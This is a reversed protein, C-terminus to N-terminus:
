ATIREMLASKAGEVQTGEFGAAENADSEEMEPLGALALIFNTLTLNPFLEAGSDALKGIVDVVEELTPVNPMAYIVEPYEELGAFAAANVDFLRPVLHTNIVGKISDMWGLVAKEFMHRKETALAFSGVKEHGIMVFDALVVGAIRADYRLIIENVNFQRRGGTTMLEFKYAEPNEPDHPLLVGEQEDRRVNRIIAELEAKLSAYKADKLVEFPVHMVPLGALDREIGIAEIEEICTKFHWPRYASRLISRGQPDGKSETTRFLLSKSIPMFRGTFDPAASQWMGRLGGGEDFEWKLLTEQSRIALKRFGVLGDDYKSTAPNPEEETPLVEKGNRVKWCIEFWSWGYRLFSIVETVFSIWSHSMDDMCQELFEAAKEDVEEDGGPQVSWDAGRVLQEIAFLIAGVVPDNEAMERYVKQGKKGKLEAVFEERIQGGYRSLGTLGIEGLTIPAANEQTQTGEPM